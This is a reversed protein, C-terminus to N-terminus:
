ACVVFTKSLKDHLAQGREDMVVWVLGVLFFAVGFSAGVGRLLARTLGPNQGRGDLVKIKALRAGLTQGGMMAGAASYVAGLVLMLAFVGVAVIPDRIAHFLGSSSGAVQLAGFLLSVAATMLLAGDVMWAIVRRGVGAARAKVIRRRASTPAARSSARTAFREGEEEPRDKQTGALASSSAVLDDGRASLQEAVGIGMKPEELLSDFGFAGERAGESLVGAASAERELSSVLEVPGTLDSLNGFWEQDLSESRTPHSQEGLLTPGAQGLDRERPLHREDSFPDPGSVLRITEENPTHLPAASGEGRLPLAQIEERAYSAPPLAEMKLTREDDSYQEAMSPSDVLPPEMGQLSEVFEALSKPAVSAPDLGEADNAM